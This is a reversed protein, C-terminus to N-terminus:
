TAAPLQAVPQVERKAQQIALRARNVAEDVYLGHLDVTHDDRGTNKEHFVADSAKNNAEEMLKGEQKGKESLQKAEAKRGSKYAEQLSFHQDSPKARCPNGLHRDYHGHFTLATQWAPCVLLRAPTYRRNNSTSVVSKLTSRQKEEGTTM